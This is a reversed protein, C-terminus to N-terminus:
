KRLLNNINQVAQNIQAYILAKTKDNVDAYYKLEIHALKKRLPTAIQWKCGNLEKNSSEEPTQMPKM